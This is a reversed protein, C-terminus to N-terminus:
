QGSFYEDWAADRAARDEDTQIKSHYIKLFDKKLKEAEEVTGPFLQRLWAETAPSDLHKLYKGTLIFAAETQLARQLALGYYHSNWAAEQEIDSRSITFSM